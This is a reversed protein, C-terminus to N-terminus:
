SEHWDIRQAALKSSVCCMGCRKGHLVMFVRGACTYLGRIGVSSAHDHLVCMCTEVCNFLFRWMFSAAWTSKLHLFSSAPYKYHHSCLGSRNKPCPSMIHTHTEPCCSFAESLGPLSVRGKLNWLLLHLQLFTHMCTYCFLLGWRMTRPLFYSGADLFAYYQGEVANDSGESFGFQDKPKLPVPHCIAAGRVSHSCWSPGACM